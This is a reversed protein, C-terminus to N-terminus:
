RGTPCIGSRTWNLKFPGTELATRQSASEERTLIDISKLASAAGLQNEPLATVTSSPKQIRRLGRSLRRFGGSHNTDGGNAFLRRDTRQRRCPLRTDGRGEPVAFTTGTRGFGTMVEDAILQAGHNRTIAAVRSLWGEPQPIMGAAGQM